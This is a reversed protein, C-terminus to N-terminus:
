NASTRAPRTKAAEVNRGPRNYANLVQGSLLRRSWWFSPAALAVAAPSPPAGPASPGSQPGGPDAALCDGPRSSWGWGAARARGRPGLKPEAAASPAPQPRPRDPTRATLGVGATPPQRARRPPRRFATFTTFATGHAAGGDEGGKGGKGPRRRPSERGAPAHGPAAKVAKVVKKPARPSITPGTRNM